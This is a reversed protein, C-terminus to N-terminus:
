VEKICYKSTPKEYVSIWGDKELVAIFNSPTTTKQALVYGVSIISISWENKTIDKLWNNIIDKAEVLHNGIYLKAICNPNIKVVEYKKM